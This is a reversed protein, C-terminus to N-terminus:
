NVEGNELAALAEKRQEPTVPMNHNAVGAREAFDAGKGKVTKLVIMSPSGENQKAKSIATHIEAVDHGDVTQTHFGFSSFKAAVDGLSMIQDVTGDIQANNFDLFAIFHDLKYHAAAMAAEWIQGEQCEGDGIMTYVYENGGCIQIAKSIGVACSFGQGLSGTTMDIGPTRLMDCHSPLNTNPRNLTALMEIPFFGKEALASYLAPGAHGKSMVFRDRGEEKPKKPNINMVDFYLVALVDAVSLCGGVHGIGLEGICDVTLYRIRRAKQELMERKKQEM